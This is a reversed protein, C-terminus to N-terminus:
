NLQSSYWQQVSFSYSVVTDVARGALIESVVILMYTYGSGPIPLAENVTNGTRLQARNDCRHRRSAEKPLSVLISM